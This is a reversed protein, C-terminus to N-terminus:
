RNEIKPYLHKVRQPSEDLQDVVNSVSECPGRTFEVIHKKEM